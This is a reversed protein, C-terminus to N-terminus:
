LKILIQWMKLCCIKWIGMPLDMPLHWSHRPRTCSPQGASSPHHGVCSRSSTCSHGSGTSQCGFNRNRVFFRPVDQSICRNECTRQLKHSDLQASWSDPFGRANWPCLPYKLRPCAAWKMSHCSQCIAMFDEQNATNPCVVYFGNSLLHSDSKYLLEPINKKTQKRKLVKNGSMRSKTLIATTLGPCWLGTCWKRSSLSHFLSVPAEAPTPLPTAWCGYTPPRWPCHNTGNQWEIYLLEICRENKSAWTSVEAMNGNGPRARALISTALRLLTCIHCKRHDDSLHLFSYSLDVVVVFVIM